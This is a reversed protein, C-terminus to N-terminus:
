YNSTTQVGSRKGFCFSQQRFSGLVLSASSRGSLGCSRLRGLSRSPRGAVLQWRLRAYFFWGAPRLCGYDLAHRPMGSYVPIATKNNRSFLKAPSLRGGSGSVCLAMRGGFRRKSRPSRVGHGLLWELVDSIAIPMWALLDRTTRRFGVVRGIGGGNAPGRTARPAINQGWPNAAKSFDAQTTPLTSSGGNRDVTKANASGPFSGRFKHIVVTQCHPHKRYRGGHVSRMAVFRGVHPAFQKALGCVGAGGLVIPLWAWTKTRWL